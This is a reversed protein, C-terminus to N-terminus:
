TRATRTIKKNETFFSGVQKFSTWNVTVGVVITLNEKSM